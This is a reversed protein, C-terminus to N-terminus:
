VWPTAQYVNPICCRRVLPPLNLNLSSAWTCNFFFFLGSSVTASYTRVAVVFNRPIVFCLHLIGDDDEGKTRIYM